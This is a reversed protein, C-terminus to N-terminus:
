LGARVLNQEVITLFDEKFSLVEFDPSGVIKDIKKMACVGQAFAKKFNGKQLNEIAVAKMVVCQGLAQLGHQAEM